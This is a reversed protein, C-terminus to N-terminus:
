KTQNSPQNTTVPVYSKNKWVNPIDDDWNVFEYKEPPTKDVVLRIPNIGPQVLRQKTSGCPNWSGELKLLRMGQWFLPFLPLVTDTLPMVPAYVHKQWRKGVM